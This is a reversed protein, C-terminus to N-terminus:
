ENTESTRKFLNMAELCCVNVADLVTTWAHIAEEAKREVRFFAAFFDLSLNVPCIGFVLSLLTSGFPPQLTGLTAFNRSSYTGDQMFSTVVEESDRAQDRHFQTM